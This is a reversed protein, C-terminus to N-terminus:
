MGAVLMWAAMAAMGLNEIITVTSMPLKFVTGLCACQITEKRMVSQIVGIAGVLSLVLAAWAATRLQFRFLFAFGLTLEAFPYAYGWPKFAKAIVDYRAYSSAFAPVDLLKFAGFVIFFGAMFSLMWNQGAFAALATLGIVLLLPYYSILWAQGAPPPLAQGAAESVRYKGVKALAENLAPVSLPPPVIARPPDLTVRIDPSLQQLTSEVKRACNACTMGTVPYTKMACVYSM